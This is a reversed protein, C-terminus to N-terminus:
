ELQKIKKTIKLKKSPGDKIYWIGHAKTIKKKNKTEIGGEVFALTKGKRIVKGYGYIPEQFAPNMYQIQLQVTVCWQSKEMLTAVASSLAVDCLTALVGGHVIGGKNLHQSKIDLKVKCYGRKRQVTKLGIFKDFDKKPMAKITSFITIVM